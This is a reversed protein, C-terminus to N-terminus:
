LHQKGLFIDIFVNLKNLDELQLNDLKSVIANKIHYRDYDNEVPITNNTRGKLYDSSVGLYVAIKVLTHEKPFYDGNKYHSFSSQKINLAKCIDKNKIKKEYMIEAIRRNTQVGKRM